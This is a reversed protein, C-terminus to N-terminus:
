YMPQEEPDTCQRSEKPMKRAGTRPRLEVYQPLETSSVSPRGALAAEPPWGVEPMEEDEDESSVDEQTCQLPSLLSPRDSGWHSGLTCGRGREGSGGPSSAPHRGVISGALREM